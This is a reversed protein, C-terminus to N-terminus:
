LFDQMIQLRAGAGVLLSFKWFGFGLVWFRFNLGCLFRPCIEECRQLFWGSVRLGLPMSGRFSFDSADSDLSLGRLPRAYALRVCALCAYISLCISLSVCVCIYIHVVVHMCVYLFPLPLLVM